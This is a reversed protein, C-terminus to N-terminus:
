PKLAVFRLRVYDVWWKDRATDFLAPRAREAVDHHFAVVESDPLLADFAAAFVALWDEMACDLDTPRPFHEMRSVRFGAAELRRRYDGPIPFFWPVAPRGDIGRADLAGLIAALLHDINGGGGMEAVFRGGPRLARFVGAIVADPQTMWHLAANSFVADFEDSFDLAEGRVVRIDLDRARAVAVQAPSADVGVVTAGAGALEVTLTGDGCGLDLIREGSRPALIALADHGLAPVFGADRAYLDPNWDRRQRLSM